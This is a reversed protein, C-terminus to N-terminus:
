DRRWEQENGRRSYQTPPVASPIPAQSKRSNKTGPNSGGGESRRAASAVRAATDATMRWVRADRDFTFGLGDLVASFEPIIRHPFRIEVSIATAVPMRAAAARWRETEGPRLALEAIQALAGRLVDGSWHGIGGKDLAAGKKIREHNLRRREMVSPSGSKSLASSPRRELAEKQLLTAGRRKWAEFRDARREFPALLMAAGLLAEYDLSLLGAKEVHTGLRIMTRDREVSNSAALARAALDARIQGRVVAVDAREKKKLMRKYKRREM